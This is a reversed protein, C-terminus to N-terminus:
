APRHHHHGENHELVAKRLAIALVLIGPIVFAVILFVLLDSM